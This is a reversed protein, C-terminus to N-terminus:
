CYGQSTVTKVVKRAVAVVVVLSRAWWMKTCCTKTGNKWARSSGLNLFHRIMQLRKKGLCSSFFPRCDVPCLTLASTDWFRSKNAGRFRPFWKASKPRKLYTLLLKTLKSSFQSSQLNHLPKNIKDKKEKGSMHSLKTCARLLLTTTPPDKGNGWALWAWSPAAFAHVKRPGDIKSRKKERERYM